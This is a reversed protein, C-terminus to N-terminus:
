VGAENGDPQPFVSFDGMAVEPRLQVCDEMDVCETMYRMHAADLPDGSDQAVQSAYALDDALVFMYVYLGGKEQNVFYLELHERENKLTANGEVQHAKLFDLWERAVTEKGTKIHVRWLVMEM